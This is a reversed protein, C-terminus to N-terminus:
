LSSVCVCVWAWVRVSSWRVDLWIDMLSSNNTILNFEGRSTTVSTLEQATMKKNPSFLNELKQSSFFGMKVFAIFACRFEVDGSLDTSCEYDEGPSWFASKNLYGHINYHFHISTEKIWHVVHQPSKSSPFLSEFLSMWYISRPRCFTFFISIRYVFVCVDLSSWLMNINFPFFIVHKAIWQNQLLSHPQTLTMESYIPKSTFSDVQMLSSVHRSRFGSSIYTHLKTPREASCGLASIYEHQIPRMGGGKHACVHVCWTDLHVFLRLWMSIGGADQARTVGGQSERM